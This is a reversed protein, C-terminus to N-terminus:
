SINFRMDQSIVHRLLNCNVVQVLVVDCRPHKTINHLKNSTTHNQVRVTHMNFSEETDYPIVM